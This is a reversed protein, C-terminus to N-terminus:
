TVINVGSCEKSRLDMGRRGGPGGGWGARWGVRGAVRGLGGGSGARWGVRGAVRGPGGGWGARWGVRWGVRCAQRGPCDQRGSVDCSVKTLCFIIVQLALCCVQKM